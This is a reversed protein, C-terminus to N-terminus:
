GYVIGAWGPFSWSSTGLFLNQPLRAAISRLGEAAPAPGVARDGEFFELQSMGGDGPGM